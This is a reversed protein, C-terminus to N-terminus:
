IDELPTFFARVLGIPKSQVYVKRKKIRVVNGSVYLNLPSLEVQENNNALGISFCSVVLLTFSLIRTIDKEMM